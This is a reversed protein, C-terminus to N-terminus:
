VPDDGLYVRRAIDSHRIEQPTGTVVIRGQALLYVRDCVALAGRVNHDTLLVGMGDARLEGIARSIEAAAIPDVGALPEDCLLVSPRTCLARAFELRRREGGSLKATKQNAVDGLGYRRLLEDARKAARPEGSAELVALLNNRASLGRLVSPGQPLYGLGLRARADLPLRDLCRGFRVTGQDAPLLGLLIHFTTTKGAGNPGLLGVVEGPGVEIDIKDVIVRDGFSKSIGHAELKTTM